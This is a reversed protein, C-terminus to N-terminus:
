HVFPVSLECAVWNWSICKPCLFDPIQWYYGLTETSVKRLFLTENMFLVHRDYTGRLWPFALQHAQPHHDGDQYSRPPLELWGSLWLLQQQQGEERHHWWRSPCTRRPVPCELQYEEALQEGLGLVESLLLTHCGLLALIKLSYCKEYDHIGLEGACLLVLGLVQKEEYEPQKADQRKIKSFEDCDWPILNMHKDLVKFTCHLNFLHGDWLVHRMRYDVHAAHQEVQLWSQQEM